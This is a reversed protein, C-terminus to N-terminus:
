KRAREIAAAMQDMTERESFASRAPEVLRSWFSFSTPRVAWRKWESFLEAWNQGRVPWYRANRCRQSPRRCVLGPRQNSENVDNREAAIQGILPM